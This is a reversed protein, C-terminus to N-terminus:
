NRFRFNLKSSLVILTLSATLIISALPGFEPIASTTNNYIKYVNENTTSATKNFVILSDFSIDNNENTDGILNSPDADFYLNYIGSKEPLWNFSIPATQRAGINAKIINDYVLFNTENKIKLRFMISTANTEGSNYVDKTVAVPKGALPASMNNGFNDLFNLSGNVWALEAHSPRGTEVIVIGAMLPKTKDFYHFKGLTGFFQTFSKGPEILGSDFNGVPGTNAAGTTVTHTNNDLNTWTITDGLSVTVQYPLFCPAYACEKATDNTIYVQTSSAFTPSISIVGLSVFLFGLVIFMKEM